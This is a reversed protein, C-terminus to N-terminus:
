SQKPLEMDLKAYVQRWYELNGDNQLGVAIAVRNTLSM